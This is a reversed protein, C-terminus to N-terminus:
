DFWRLKQRLSVVEGIIILTPAKLEVNAVAKTASEVTTTLVTQDPTTGKSVLALPTMKDIGHRILQACIVDLGTLGMYFVLTQGKTVFEKWPLDCSGDKLHGTIFRVSQSYDRHTLPIGSYSSCGSAATIGPVVQFPVGAAALEEIEEGGRGFIFPDGGKLRVVRKGEKALRVLLLNIKEQPLTHNSREKGVHIREADQRALELIPASVLRDYVVVDAQRILRLARFTLLDPDGPGAGVLYVEGTDSMADNGIVEDLYAEAQKDKGSLVLEAFYGSLHKEWFRRRQNTAPYHMNVKPRFNSAIQALRGYAFPLTSEILNRLLRTMVPLQGGSSVAAVIPSRDIVSPFIFSSLAPNNVVNVPLHRAMADASVARALTDSENSCVVISANDLLNASYTQAVPKVAGSNILGALEACPADSILNIQMGSNKLLAHKRTLTENNGIFLANKGQM